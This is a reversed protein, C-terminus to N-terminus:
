SGNCHNAPNGCSNLCNSQEFTIPCQLLDPHGVEYQNCIGSSDCAYEYIQPTPTPEGGPPEYNPGVCSGDTGVTICYNYGDGSEAGCGNAGDCGLEEIVPDSDNQLWAYLIYGQYDESPEYKYPDGTTPDCPIENLYPALTTDNCDDLIDGDPYRSNDNYYNEFAIRVSELDAKRKADNAKSQQNIIGFISLIILIALIAVVILLEVMTLGARASDPQLRNKRRILRLKQFM